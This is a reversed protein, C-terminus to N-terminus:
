FTSSCGLSRVVAIWLHWRQYCWRGTAYVPGVTLLLNSWHSVQLQDCTKVHQGQNTYTECTRSQRELSPSLCASGSDHAVLWPHYFLRQESLSATSGPVQTTLAELSWFWYYICIHIYLSYPTVSSPPM